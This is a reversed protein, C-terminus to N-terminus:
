DPVERDGIDDPIGHYVRPELDDIHLADSSASPRNAFSLGYGPRHRRRASTSAATPWCYIRRGDAM